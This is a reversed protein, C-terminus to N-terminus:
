LPMLRKSIPSSEVYIVGEKSQLYYMFGSCEENSIGSKCQIANSVSGIDDVMVVTKNYCQQSCTEKYQQKIQGYEITFM